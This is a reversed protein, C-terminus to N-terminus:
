RGTVLPEANLRAKIRAQNESKNITTVAKGFADRQARNIKTAEISRICRWKRGGKTEIQRMEQRPHYRGCHYCYINEASSMLTDPSLPIALPCQTM